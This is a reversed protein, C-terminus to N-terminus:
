TVKADTSKREPADNKQAMEARSRRFQHAAGRGFHGM